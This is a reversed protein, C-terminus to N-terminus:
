WPRGAILARRWRGNRGEVSVQRFVAVPTFSGDPSIRYVHEGHRARRWAYVAPLHAPAFGARALERSGKAPLIRSLRRAMRRAGQVDEAVGAPAGEGGSGALCATAPLFTFPGAGGGPQGEAVPSGAPIGAGALLGPDGAAVLPLHGALIAASAARSCAGTVAVVASREWFRLGLPARWEPPVWCRGSRALRM